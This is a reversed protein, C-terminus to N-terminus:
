PASWRWGAGVEFGDFFIVGPRYEVAGRDSVAVQDGDGDFPRPVGRQDHSPLPAATASDITPSGILPVLTAPGFYGDDLSGLMPDVGVLDTPHDFGCSVGDDLNDGFSTLRSLVDLSCNMAGNLAVITSGMLIESGAITEIGGANYAITCSTLWVLAENELVTISSTEGVTKSRNDAITVNELTVISRGYGSSNPSGILLAGGPNAANGSITSSSIAVWDDRVWVGGGMVAGGMATSNDAITSDKIVTHDATIVAAGSGFFLTSNDKITCGYLGLFSGGSCDIAAGSYEARNGIISTRTLEVVGEALCFIGAGSSALNESIESDFVELEGHVLIGFSGSTGNNETVLCRRMVLHAEEAVQIVSQGNFNPAAGTVTLDDFEVSGIIVDFIQDGESAVSGDVITGGGPDGAIVVDDLIDIDGAINADDPIGRLTLPYVGAPVRVVDVEGVVGATCADVRMDHNASQVAERLSCDGDSNLEDVITTVVIEAGIVPAAVWMMAAGAGMLGTLFRGLPQTRFACHVANM